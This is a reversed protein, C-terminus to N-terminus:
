VRIWPENTVGAIPRNPVYSHCAAPKSPAPMRTPMRSPPKSPMTPRSPSSIGLVTMARQKASTPSNVVSTASQSFPSAWPVATASSTTSM